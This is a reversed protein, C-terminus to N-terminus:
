SSVQWALDALDIYENTGRIFGPPPADPFCERCPVAFWRAFEAILWLVDYQGIVHGCEPDEGPGPLHAVPLDDGVDLLLPEGGDLADLTPDPARLASM